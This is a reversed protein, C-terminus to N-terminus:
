THISSATATRTWNRWCRRHCGDMGAAARFPYDNGQAPEWVMRVAPVAAHVADAASRFAQRFAAPDQGWTRWPANMEPAFALLVPVGVRDTEEALFAALDQAAAPDDAALDARPYMSLLAAAQEGAVQDLFQRIYLKETDDLPYQASKSYVAAPAGLRDSLAAANDTEPDLTVGWAIPGGAARPGGVGSRHAHDGAGAATPTAPVAGPSPSVAVATGASCLGAPAAIVLGLLLVRRWLRRARPPAPGRLASSPSGPGSM